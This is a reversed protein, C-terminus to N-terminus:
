PGIDEISIPSINDYLQQSQASLLIARAVTRGEEESLLFLSSVASSSFVRQATSLRKSYKLTSFPRVKHHLFYTSGTLGAM